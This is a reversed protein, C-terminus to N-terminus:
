DDGEESNNRLRMVVIWTVAPLITNRERLRM